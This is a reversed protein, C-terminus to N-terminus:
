YWYNVSMVVKGFNQLREICDDNMVLLVVNSECGMFMEVFLQDLLCTSLVGTKSCYVLPRIGRSTLDFVSFNTGSYPCSKHM